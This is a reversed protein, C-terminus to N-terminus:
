LLSCVILSFIFIKLFPFLFQLMNCFKLLQCIGRSHHSDLFIVYYKQKNYEQGPRQDRERM